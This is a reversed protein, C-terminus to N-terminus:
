VRPFDMQEYTGLSDREDYAKKQEVVLDELKGAAEVLSDLQVMAATIRNRLEQKQKDSEKVDRVLRNNELQVAVIWVALVVISLMLFINLADM